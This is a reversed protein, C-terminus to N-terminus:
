EQNASLQEFIALALTSAATASDALCNCHGMKRGARPQKKGYLHLKANSHQYIINWDPVRDSPWLDGLLNVMAAPSLLKTDGPQLGCLMRVQQEFQDTLCADLSYHGSNHPRPAMENILLENDQTLFFEM